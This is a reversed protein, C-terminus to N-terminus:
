LLHLRLVTEQSLHHSYGPLHSLSRCLLRINASPAQTECSHGIRPLVCQRGCSFRLRKQVWRHFSIPPDKTSAKFSSLFHYLEGNVWSSPSGEPICLNFRTYTFSFNLSDYPCLFVPASLAHHVTKLMHEHMIFYKLAPVRKIARIKKICSTASSKFSQLGDIVPNPNLSFQKDIYKSALFSFRINLSPERSEYLMVNIPTSNRYGLAKRIAAFQTRQLTLFLSKHNSYPFIHSTYETSGRLISRYLTMLLRPYSGWWTGTLSSIIRNINRGKAILYRMHFTGKLRFDLVVRLFHSEALISVPSNSIKLPFDSLSYSKKNHFVVAHTKFHSISLGNVELYNNVSILAENLSRFASNLNKNTCFFVIDDAYQLIGVSETVHSGIDKLYINFLM